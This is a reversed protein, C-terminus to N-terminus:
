KWADNCFRITKVNSLAWLLWGGLALALLEFFLNVDWAAAGFPWYTFLVRAVNSGVGLGVSIAGFSRWARSGRFLGIAIAIYLFGFIWYLVATARFVADIIPIGVAHGVELAGFILEMIGFLVFLYAAIRLSLPAQVRAPTPQIPIDSGIM